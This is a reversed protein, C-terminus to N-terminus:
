KKVLLAATVWGDSSNWHAVLQFDHCAATLDDLDLQRAAGFRLLQGAALRGLQDPRGAPTGSGSVLAAFHVQRACADYYIRPELGQAKGLRALANRVLAQGFDLYTAEMLAGDRSKELSVLLFDGAKLADHAGTLWAQRASPSLLGLCGASLVALSAGTGVAPLDWQSAQAGPPAVSIQATSARDQVSDLVRPDIDPNVLVVAKPRELQGLILAARLGAFPGADILRAAPGIRDVLEPLIRDLIEREGREVHPPPGDLGLEIPFDTQGAQLDAQALQILDVGCGDESGRAVDAIWEIM